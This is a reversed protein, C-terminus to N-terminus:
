KFKLKGFSFHGKTGSDCEPINKTVSLSIPASFSVPTVEISGCSRSSWFTEVCVIAKATIKATVNTGAKVEGFFCDKEKCLDQRPGGKASFSFDADVKAGLELDLDIIGFGVDFEKSITPPGYLTLGKVKAKLEFTGAVEKIGSPIVGKGKECCDKVKGEVGAKVEDLHSADLGP